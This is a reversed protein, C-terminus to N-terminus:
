FSIAFFLHSRSINSSSLPVWFSLICRSFQPLLWCVNGVEFCFFYYGDHPRLSCYYCSESSINIQLCVKKFSFCHWLQAVKINNKTEFYHCSPYQVTQCERNEPPKAGSQSPYWLLTGQYPQESHFIKRLKRYCTLGCMSQYPTQLTNQWM